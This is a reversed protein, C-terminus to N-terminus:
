ANGLSALREEIRQREDARERPVLALAKQLPDRAERKWGRRIYLEAIWQLYQWRNDEDTVMLRDCAALGSEEDLRHTLVLSLIQRNYRIEDPALAAARNMLQFAAEVDGRAALLLGAEFFAEHFRPEMRATERFRDLAEDIRKMGALTRGMLYSVEPKAAGGELLPELYKKAEAFRGLEVNVAALLLRGEEDGPSLREAVELAERARDLRGALSLTRGLELHVVFSSPARAAARELLEVAQEARGQILAVYGSRFEGGLIRYAERRTAPKDEIALEFLADLGPRLLEDDADRAPADEGRANQEECFRLLSDLALARSDAEGMMSRARVYWHRAQHFDGSLFSRDGREKLREYGRLWNGIRHLV